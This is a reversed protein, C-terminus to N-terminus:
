EAAAPAQPAAPARAADVERQLNTFRRELDAFARESRAVIDELQRRLQDRQMQEDRLQRELDQVVATRRIVFDGAGSNLFWVMVGAGVLFGLLFTFLYRIVAM